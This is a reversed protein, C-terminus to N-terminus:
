PRPPPLTICVGRIEPFQLSSWFPLTGNCGSLRGEAAAAGFGRKNARSKALAAPAATTPIEREFPDAPSMLWAARVSSEFAARAALQTPPLLVLDKRALTTVAEVNRITMNFLKLAEVPAEYNRYSGSLAHKAALFEEIQKELLECKLLVDPTPPLITREPLLVEKM